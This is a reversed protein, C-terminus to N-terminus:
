RSLRGGFGPVHEFLSVAEIHSTNPFLDLVESGRHQYYHERLLTTDRALSAPDCSVLVIAAARSAALAAVGERGLGARAPDAIVIDVESVPWQEIRCEVVEATQEALRDALNARADASSSPSSEVVIVHAARAGITAAFLGVGGYADLLVRGSLDFGELARQVSDILLEASQPSSQFFSRASVRLRVGAVTEHLHEDSSPDHEVPAPERTHFRSRPRSMQAVSTTTHDSLSVRITVEAGPAPRAAVVQAELDPHMVPCHDIAIVDHSRRARFGFRGESNAIVRATTRYRWSDISDGVFIAPRNIRGIRSLADHVIEAKLDLQEAAAVHLWDCGGCGRQWAECAPEVRRVSAEIVRVVEAKAFDRKNTTIEVEVVEGPLGADVFVVRGDGDRALAAGGVIM